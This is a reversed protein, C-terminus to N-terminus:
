QLTGDVTQFSGNGRVTMTNDGAMIVTGYVITVTGNGANNGTGGITVNDKFLLSASHNSMDLAGTGGDGDVGGSGGNGGNGGITVAGNFTMAGNGVLLGLGGKGGNGGADGNGGNGGLTVDGNFTMTGNDTLGGEGGIGGDGGADGNGGNGGLTVARNFTMTGKNALGGIGGDGGNGGSVGQSGEGGLAFNGGFSATSNANGNFIGDAGDRLGIRFNVGSAVTFSGGSQITWVDTVSNGWVVNGGTGTINVHLIDDRDVPGVLKDADTYIEFPSANGLRVANTGNNITLTNGGNFNIIDDYQVSLIPNQYDWDGAVAAGGGSLMVASLLMAGLPRALRHAIKTLKSKTKM